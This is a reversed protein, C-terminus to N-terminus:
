KGIKTDTKLNYNFNEISFNGEYERDYWDIDEFDINDAISLTLVSFFTM